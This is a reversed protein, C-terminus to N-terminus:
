LSVPVEFVQNEKEIAHLPRRFPREEASEAYQRVLDYRKWFHMPLAFRIDMAKLYEDSSLGAKEGLRPDFPLFAADTKRGSVRKLERYFTSTFFENEQPTNEDWLWLLLDGAHFVTTGDNLTVYFAVGADTSLLTEAELVGPLSYKKDPETFRVREMVAAPEGGMDRVARRVGRPDIDNGLFYEAEPYMVALKWIERSYHDGHSHSVFISIEKHPDLEPLVGRSIGDSSDTQAAGIAAISDFILIQEKTEAIFGSHGLYTIKM